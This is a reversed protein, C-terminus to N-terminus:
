APVWTFVVNIVEGFGNGAGGDTMAFTADPATTSATGATMACGSGNTGGGTQSNAFLAGDFGVESHGGNPYYGNLFGPFGYVGGLVIDGVAAAAAAASVNGTASTALNTAQIDALTVSAVGTYVAITSCNGLATTTVTSSVGGGSGIWIDIHGGDHVKTWTAFGGSVASSNQEAFLIGIDTSSPTSPLTIVNTSPNAAAVYDLPAPGPAAVTQVADLVEYQVTLDWTGSIGLFVGSDVTVTVGSRTWETTRLVGVGNLKIDESNDRPLYSLTFPGLSGSTVSFHDEVWLTEASVTTSTPVRVVSRTARQQVPDANRSRGSLSGGFSQRAQVGQRQSPDRPPFQRSM